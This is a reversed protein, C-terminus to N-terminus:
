RRQANIVTVPMGTLGYPAGRWEFQQRQELWQATTTAQSLLHNLEQVPTQDIPESEAATSPPGLGIM